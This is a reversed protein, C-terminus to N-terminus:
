VSCSWNEIATVLCSIQFIRCRCNVFKCTFLFHLAVFTFNTFGSSESVCVTKNKDLPCFCTANSFFCYFMTMHPTICFITRICLCLQVFIILTTKSHTAIKLFAAGIRSWSQPNTSQTLSHTLSHWIWLFEAAAWHSGVKILIDAM